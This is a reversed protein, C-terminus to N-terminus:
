RWPWPGWEISSREGEARMDRARVRDVRSGSSHRQRSSWYESQVWGNGALPLSISERFRGATVADVLEKLRTTEDNATEDCADCGCAPFADMRWRGARVRLGPFVTFAITLPAAKSDRPVLKVNPRALGGLEVESDLRYGELREVKFAAELQELLTLAVDHL